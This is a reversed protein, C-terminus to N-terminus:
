WGCLHGYCQLWSWRTVTVLLITSFLMVQVPWAMFCRASFITRLGAVGLVSLLGASGPLRMRALLFPPLGM